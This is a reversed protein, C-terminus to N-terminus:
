TEDIVRLDVPGHPLDDNIIAVAHRTPGARVQALAELNSRAPAYDPKVEVARRLAREAGDYDDLETLCAGLNGWSQYHRNNVQTGERFLRAAAAYDQRKMAATGQAFLEELRALQGLTLHSGWDQQMQALIDEFREIKQRAEQTMGPDRPGLAVYRKLAQVARAPRMTMQAATALNYWFDPDRDNVAVARTFLQFAEEPRDTMGCITGLGFLAADASETIALAERFAREAEAYKKKQALQFGEATLANVHDVVHKSVANPGSNSQAQPRAGAQGRPRQRGKSM